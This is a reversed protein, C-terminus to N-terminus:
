RVGLNGEPSRKCGTEEEGLRQCSSIRNGCNKRKRLTKPSYCSGSLVTQKGPEEM